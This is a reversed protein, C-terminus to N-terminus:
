KSSDGKRHIVPGVITIANPGLVVANPGSIRIADPGQILVAANVEQRRSAPPKGLRELARAEAQLKLRRLEDATYRSADHDVLRAHVVCLWIGNDPHRRQEPTLSPDYRPGGPSAATIHGADGASVAKDPELGPGSTPAECLSCTYGARKALHQKTAASFENGQRGAV